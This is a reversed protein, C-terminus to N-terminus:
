SAVSTTTPYKAAYRGPSAQPTSFQMMKHASAILEDEDVFEMGYAEEMWKWLYARQLARAGLFSPPDDKTSFMLDVHHAGFPIPLAVVSRHPFSQMVGGTSWPDLQGNTFVINSASSAIRVGGFYNAAWLRDPKVGWTKICHEEIMEIDFEGQDWFMDRRGTSPYYPLEQGLMQTCWQYDYPAARTENQVPLDVCKEEGAPDYFIAIANRMAHLLAHKGDAGDFDKDMFDCAAQMPWAPLSGSKSDLMYDSPFPYNGMAFADFAAQAWYALRVGDEATALPTCLKFISSLKSLGHSSSSLDLVMEFAARVNAICGPASGAEERASFTVAEWYSSPNYPPDLGYLYAGMPASSAIAGAVLHPYKLRLLAALVGGYSGGFVVVPSDPAGLSSRLHVLLAAYDALAQEVSLYHMNAKTAAKDAGFPLSQGYYRHEAFVLLANYDGASEWMMGTNDAYLEVEGENGAYFFIPGRKGDLWGWTDDNVLYRLPFTARSGNASGEYRFHDLTTNFWRETCDAAGPRDRRQAQAAGKLHLRSGRAWLPANLRGSATPLLLLLLLWALPAALNGMAAGKGAM